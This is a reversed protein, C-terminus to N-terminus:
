PGPPTTPPQGPGPPQVPIQQPLGIQLIPAIPTVQRLFAVGNHNEIIKQVGANLALTTAHFVSLVLDQYTQDDELRTANLELAKVKEFFIPNGHSEHKAYDGFEDAAAGALDERDDRDKLMYRLLWDKVIEKSRRTATDCQSLLGPGVSALLPSWAALADPDAKIQEKAKEFQRLIEAAPAQRVGNPTQMTFQPDIPGLQSHKGMVIEDCGLALMTGASMAQNPIVARIRDFRTRLYELVAQAADPDGGPTHLVLDLEREPVRSVATMFGQMDLGSVLWDLSFPRDELFASAYVIVARTPQHQHLLTLYKRRVFDFGPAGNPAPNQNM